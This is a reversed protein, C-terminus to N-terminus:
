LTASIGPIEREPNVTAVASMSPISLSSDKSNENMRAM